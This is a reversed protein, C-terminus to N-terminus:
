FSLDDWLSWEEIELSYLDQQRWRQCSKSCFDCEPCILRGCEPCHASNGLVLPAYGCKHRDKGWGGCYAVLTKWQSDKAEHKGQLINLGRLRFVHYDGINARESEWLTVLVHILADITDLPDYIFLPRKPREPHFFLLRTYENPHYDAIRGSSSVTELFHTLLTCYLFPLSLGIRSRWSEVKQIFAREWTRFVQKEGYSQVNAGSAILVPVINGTPLEFSSVMKQWLEYDPIPAQSAQGLARDRERYFGGRYDFIWPPLFQHPDGVSRSADIELFGPREFESKLSQIMRWDTEGLITISTHCPANTPQLISSPWLYNSVVGVITVAQNHRNCKFRPVCHEVYTNRNQESRRANKVDMPRGDVTFDHNRWESKDPRDLHLIQEISVDEVEFGHCRYFTLAAKEAARASLVRGLQPHRGYKAIIATQTINIPTVNETIEPADIWELALCIDQEDLEPHPREEGVHDSQAQESIRILSLITEHTERHQRILAALDESIEIQDFCRGASYREFRYPGKRKGSEYIVDFDSIGSRFEIKGNGDTKHRVTAGELMGWALIGQKVFTEFEKWSCVNEYKEPMSQPREDNATILEDSRGNMYRICTNTDLLYKM